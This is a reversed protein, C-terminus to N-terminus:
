AGHMWVTGSHPQQLVVWRLMYQDLTDDSPVSSAGDDDVFGGPGVKGGRGASADAATQQYTAQPDGFFQSLFTSSGQTASGDKPPQQPGSPVWVRAKVPSTGRGLGEGEPGLGYVGQQGAAGAGHVPSGPRHNVLLVNTQGPGGAGPVGPYGQLYAEEYPAPSTPRSGQRGLM